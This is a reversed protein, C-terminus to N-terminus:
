PKDHAKKIEQSLEYVAMAYLKSHNYRTIVYFNELGFWYHNGDAMELEMLTAKQAPNLTHNTNVGRQAWQALTVEPKLGANVWAEQAPQEFVVNSRVPQGAKWGHRAFYNAVSGIADVPNDWIDRHGDGDFDVAYSRFSSPMFQGYGMAGAYSGKLSTPDVGEDKTLQLFNELEGRFFTGRKPFDFGLTALADLVRYSGMIRGYRTEVGIISVIIEPPVGYKASARNLADEYTNWFEVGGNIRRPEIFIKRYEGWTLRHEAPRSMAKLISDQRKAQGLVDAVRDADFGKGVMERIFAQGAENEAYNEGETSLQAYDTAANKVATNAAVPKAVASDSMPATGACGTLATALVSLGLLPLKALRKM